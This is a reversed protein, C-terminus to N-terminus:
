PKAAPASAATAPQTAAVGTAGIIEFVRVVKQV